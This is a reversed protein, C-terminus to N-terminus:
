CLAVGFKLNLPERPGAFFAEIVGLRALLFPCLGLTYLSHFSSFKRKKLVVTDVISAQEYQLAVLV